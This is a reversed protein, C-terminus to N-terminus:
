ALRPPARTRYHHRCRVLGSGASIVPSSLRDFELAGLAPPDSKLAGDLNHYGLCQHCVSREPTDGQSTGTKGDELHSLAHLAAGQTGVLLFLALLGHVLFRLETQKM